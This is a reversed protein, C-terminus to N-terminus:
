GQKLVRRKGHDSEPFVPCPRMVSAAVKASSFLLAQGACAARIARAAALKAPADLRAIAHAGVAAAAIEM